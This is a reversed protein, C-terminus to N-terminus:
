GKQVFKFVSLGKSSDVEIHFSLFDIKYNLKRDVKKFINKEYTLAYSFLELYDAGLGHTNTTYKINDIDEKKVLIFDTNKMSKIIQKKEKHDVLSDDNGQFAIIQINEFDKCLYHLNLVKKNQIVEKALYRFEISLISNEIKHNLFRNNYLYAPEIWASNDILYSFLNSALKNSLYLLYAGHSHGYGIVRNTDYTLNNEKLLIDVAEIANIIDIAQMYSMDNFEDLTEDLQAKVPLVINKDSIIELISNKEKNIENWENQTFHKKTEKVNKLSFRKATQMYSNGFYDCQITVLNYQDAFNKRMKVYVKSELHGGFGPVLVLLGTKENVGSSPLCFDVKLNRNAKGTYINPHAHITVSHQEAM